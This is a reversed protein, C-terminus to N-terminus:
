LTSDTAFLVQYTQSDFDLRYTAAGKEFRIIESSKVRGLPYIQTLMQTFKPLSYQQKYFDSALNYASDTMQSNIFFELKNYVGKNVQEAQNTQAFSYSTIGLLITTYFHKM